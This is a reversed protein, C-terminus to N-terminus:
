FRLLMYPNFALTIFLSFVVFIATLILYALVWNRRNPHTKDNAWIIMLVLGVLPIMLLLMWGLWKGVSPTVSTDSKNELSKLESDSQMPGSENISGFFSFALLITAGFWLFYLIFDIPPPSAEFREYHHYNQFIQLDKIFQYLTCLFLLSAAIGGLIKSTKNM